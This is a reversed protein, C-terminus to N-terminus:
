QKFEKNIKQKINLKSYCIGEIIKEQEKEIIEDLIGRQKNARELLADISQNNDIKEYYEMKTDFQEICKAQLKITENNNNLEILQQEHSQQIACLNNDNTEITFSYGQKPEVLQEVDRIDIIKSREEQLEINEQLKMELKAAKKDGKEQIVTEEVNRVAELICEKDEVRYEDLPIAKGSRGREVDQMKAHTKTLVSENIVGVEAEQGQQRQKDNGKKLDEIHAKSIGAELLEEDTMDEPSYVTATTETEEVIRMKVTTAGDDLTFEKHYEEKSIEKSLLSQSPQEDDSASMISIGRLRQQEQQQQQQQEQQRRQIEADSDIEDVIAKSDKYNDDGLVHYKVSEEHTAFSYSGIEEV